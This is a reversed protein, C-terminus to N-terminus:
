VGALSDAAPSARTPWADCPLAPSALATGSVPWPSTRAARYSTTLREHLLNLSASAAQWVIAPSQVCPSPYVCTAPLCAHMYAPLTCAPPANGLRDCHGVRFVALIGKDSVNPCFNVAISRLSPCYVAVAFMAEDALWSPAAHTLATQRAVAGM